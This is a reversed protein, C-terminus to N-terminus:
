GASTKQPKGLDEYAFAPTTDFILDRGSGELAKRNIM